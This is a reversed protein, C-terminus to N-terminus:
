WAGKLSIVQTLITTGNAKDTITLTFSTVTTVTMNRIQLQNNSKKVISIANKNQLSQGNSDLTYDIVLNTNDVVGNRMFDVSIQSGEKVRYTYGNSTTIKYDIKDAVVAKVEFPIIFDKSVEGSPVSFTISGIGIDLGKISIVGKNNDVQILNSTNKVTVLSYDFEKGTEDKISYVVNISKDKEVNINPQIDYTYTHKDAFAGAIEGKIDDIENNISDQGLLISLLGVDSVFDTQTVKWANANFIFRQGVKINQTKSNYPLTIVYRSDGETIGAVITSIGLTYKTQNSIIVQTDYLNGKYMWKLNHNCEKFIGEDYGHKKEIKSTIIYDRLEDTDNVKFKLYDGRKIQNPYVQVTEQMETDATQQRKVDIVGMIPTGSNNLYIDKGDISNVLVDFRYIANERGVNYDQSMESLLQTKTNNFGKSGNVVKCYNIVNSLSNDM